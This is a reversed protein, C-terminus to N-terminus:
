RCKPREIAEYHGDISSNDDVTTGSPLSTLNLTSLHVYM